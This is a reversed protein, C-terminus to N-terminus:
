SSILWIMSLLLVWCNHEFIGDFILSYVFLAFHRYMNTRDFRGPYIELNITLLITLQVNLVSVLRCIQSPRILPRGSCHFARRFGLRDQCKLVITLIIKYYDTISNFIMKIIMTNHKVKIFQNYFIWLKYTYCHVKNSFSNLFESIYRYLISLYNFVNFFTM